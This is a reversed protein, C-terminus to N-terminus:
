HHASWTVNARLVWILVLGVSSILLFGGGLYFFPSVGEVDGPELVSLTADKPDYHVALTAGAPYRAVAVQSRGYHEDAGDYFTIRTGLYGTGDVFYRYRVEPRHLTVNRTRYRGGASRSRHTKTQTEIRSSLVEGPATPWSESARAERSTVVGKYSFFLGMVFFFGMVLSMFIRPM